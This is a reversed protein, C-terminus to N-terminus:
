QYRIRPDVLAYGLDSVLIGFLVLLTSLLQTAMIVNYDRQYISEILWRGMGPVDFIVEVIVSGGLIAPLLGALLTIVPLLGNRVAHSLIVRREPLGKARATRVYDSSIVGLLGTRMYRSLAAFSGYTMCLVPLVLHWTVDRMQALSTLEGAEPSQWGGIPFWRLWPVSSGESFWFLLLTGVFFTPLSYLMFLFVTVSRDAFSDKDVASYIGIPLAILYGLLLSTISLSLSYRLKGILTELVPERTVLSVGFDLRLLNAWYRAFRTELFFSALKDVGSPQFRPKAEAYWANWEGIVREKEAEPADLAYRMSRVQENEANRRQNEARQEPTPRPAFPDVLPRRSALRLTYVAVDRILPEQSQNMEAVLHPVAWRGWDEIQQQARIRDAATAGEHGAMDALARAVDERDLWLYTNLLVPRDLGFQERFIRHSEDTAAGKVSAALDSALQSGGPHGPALNLVLFVVLSIGFFTPIMLLLRKLVYARM